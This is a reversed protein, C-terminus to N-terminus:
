SLASRRVKTDKKKLGFRECLIEYVQGWFAASLQQEEIIRQQPNPNTSRLRPPVEGRLKAWCAVQAELRQLQREYEREKIATPM